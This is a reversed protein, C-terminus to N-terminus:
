HGHYPTDSPNFDFDNQKLYGINLKRFLEIEGEKLEVEGLIAKLFTSKGTGNDGM